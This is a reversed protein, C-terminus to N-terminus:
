EQSPTSPKSKRFEAANPCTAFHSVYGRRSVVCRRAHDVQMTTVPVADLPANGGKDTPAFFIAARCKECHGPKMWPFGVAKTGKPPKTAKETTPAPHFLPSDAPSEAPPAPPKVPHVTTAPTAM